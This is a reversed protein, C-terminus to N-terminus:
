AVWCLLGAPLAAKIPDNAVFLYSLVVGATGAVPGPRYFSILFPTARQNSGEHYLM